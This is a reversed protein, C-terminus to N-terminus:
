FVPAASVPLDVRKKEGDTVSFKVAHQRAQALFEPDTWAGNEVDSMAVAYYDGALLRAHFLDDLGPRAVSLQRTQWTWHAPDQAFVIVFCDRVVKGEADTVSGTLESTHNTWEVVVNEIAGNAPVDIGSDAVDLDNLIVRNLRWSPPGNPGGGLGTPLGRLLVHGPPLSIEFTGDDKIKAQHRVPQGIAWERAAGLEFGTPKPPASANASATFAFRGRIISPKLAVLQVGDIDSGTVSIDTFAGDSGGPGFVRLTYDGPTLNLTFKGDPLVQAAANGMMTAATRQMANVMANSMPRGEADLAIGTVRSTQIPLLTLNIAPITQGPVISLRQAQAVNGTGPYFTPAYGSREATDSNSGMMNRLTASVFYQGPTLGYLRYEGVDNTQGLRGSPMLRRSGQVYQYRLATVGVDTMPDGFEDVVKGIIVGTRTLRLDISTIVQGDTIPLRKAPGEVRAEGWSARVYNPKTAVIGYTGAPLGKIEYRGDADTTALWPYPTPPPGSTNTNARVQVRSLGKGTAAEVVRGRIVATGSAATASTDRAPQSPPTQALAPRAWALTLVAVLCPLARFM